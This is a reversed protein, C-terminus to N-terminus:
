GFFFAAALPPNPARPLSYPTTTPRPRLDNPIPRWTLRNNTHHPRPRYARSPKCNHSRSLALIRLVPVPQYQASPSSVSALTDLPLHVRPTQVIALRAPVKPLACCFLTQIPIRTQIIAFSHVLCASTASAVVCRRLLLLTRTPERGTVPWVFSPKCAALGSESCHGRPGVGTRSRITCGGQLSKTYRAVGGAGRVSLPRDSSLGDWDRTRRRCSRSCRWARWLRSPLSGLPAQEM